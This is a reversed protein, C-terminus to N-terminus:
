EAGGGWRLEWGSPSVRGTLMWGEGGFGGVGVTERLGQWFWFIKFCCCCEMNRKQEFAQTRRTRLVLQAQPQYTESTQNAKRTREAKTHTRSEKM